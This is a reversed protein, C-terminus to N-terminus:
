QKRRLLGLLPLLGTGLLAMSGPEPVANGTYDYTVKVNAAAQTHIQTLLNGAGSGSSTATATVPLVINGLGTFLALDSVPPPAIASNTASASIVGFDHGSTGGFDITGDFATANFTQSAAPLVVVLTSLDPRLLSITGSSTATVVAPAADLSEVQFSSDVVGDIEYAVTNLTGLSPDFKPISVSKSWNTTDAPISDTFTLISAHSSMGGAIAFLAIAGVTIGFRNM